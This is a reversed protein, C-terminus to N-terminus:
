LYFDLQNLAFITCSSNCLINGFIKCPSIVQCVQVLCYTVLRHETFSVCYVYNSNGLFIMVTAQTANSINQSPDQDHNLM